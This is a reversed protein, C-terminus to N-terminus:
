PRQAPCHGTTKWSPSLARCLGGALDAYAATPTCHPFSGGVDGSKLGISFTQAISLERKAVVFRLAHSLSFAKRTRTRFATSHSFLLRPSTSFPSRVEMGRRAAAQTFSFPAIVGYQAFSHAPPASGTSLSLASMAFSLILLPLEPLVMPWKLTSPGNSNQPPQGAAGNPGQAGTCHLPRPPAM